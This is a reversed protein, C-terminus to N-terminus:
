HKISGIYDASAGVKETESKVYTEMYCVFVILLAIAIVGPAMKYAFKWLWIILRFSAMLILISILVLIFIQILGM